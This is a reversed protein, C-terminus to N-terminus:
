PVHGEAAQGAHVRLSSVFLVRFVVPLWIFGSFLSCGYSGQFCWTVMHVKFVLPLSIFGQFHCAVMRVRFTIPLWMFGSLLLGGYLGQFCPAVMHETGITWISLAVTLKHGTLKKNQECEFTNKTMSDVDSVQKGM